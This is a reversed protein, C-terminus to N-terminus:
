GVAAGGERRVLSVFVDELSPEVLHVDYVARGAEALVRRVEDSGRAADHVTVHISRGFLAADVVEIAGSMAEVARLADDSRVSLIPEVVRRRLAEPTDLAILRGRNMLALRDCFEAEEMYHTSVFVTTGAAAM